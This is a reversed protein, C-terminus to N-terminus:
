WYDCYLWSWGSIQCDKLVAREQLQVNNCVVSGQIHCGDEIVVHNMVVSNVIEECEFWYSLSPWDCIAQCWM